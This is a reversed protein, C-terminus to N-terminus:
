YLPCESIIQLCSAHITEGRLLVIMKASSSYRHLYTSPVRLLSSLFCVVQNDLFPTFRQLWASFFYSSLFYAVFTFFITRVFLLVLSSRKVKGICCLTSIGFHFYMLVCASIGRRTIDGAPIYVRRTSRSM